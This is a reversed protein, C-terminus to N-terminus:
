PLAQAISAVTQRDPGWVVTVVRGARSLYAAGAPGQWFRGPLDFPADVAILPPTRLRPVVLGYAQEFAVAGDREDWAIRWAIVSQGTADQWLEFTDGAWGDAAAWAAAGDDLGAALHLGLFLEGLTDHRVRLWGAGLTAGLDPMAVSQVPAGQVYREPHLVQESSCPPLAYARDVAAWGGQDYLATVFQVGDRYPFLRLRQFAPHDALPAYNPALADAAMQALEDVAQADGSVGAYLATSLVADGEVLAQLALAADTTQQCPPLDTLEFARDQLAHALAYVLAREDEATAPGRGAVLLVQQGDAVYLSSLHAAQAAVDPLPLPELPPVLGLAAYLNLERQPQETQYRQLLLVATEHETLFSVPIQEVPPLQRVGAVIRGVEQVARASQIPSLPAPRTATPSPSPTSTSTIAVTTTVAPTELPSLAPSPTALPPPPAPRMTLVSYALLAFVGIVAVAM